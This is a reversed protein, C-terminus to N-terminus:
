GLGSSQEAGALQQGRLAMVILGVVALFLQASGQVTGFVPLFPVLGVVVGVVAGGVLAGTVSELGGILAALFGPLASLPLSYPQLVTIAALLIGAIGALAGGIVWTLATMRQPNVGMLAAATPNEAAGRMLLGLDTYKFLATLLGFIVLMSFFLGLEGVRIGSLGVPIFVDPFVGVATLASTGWVQAMIAIALGLVVVTGVTQATAGQKRFPRVFIREVLWGLAGGSAIALPLAVLAPLGLAVLTYLVYAPLTAMVGHALNLVKSARYILVIGIAFIAYVGILPLSLVIATLYTIM